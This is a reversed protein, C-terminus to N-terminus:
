CPPAPTLFDLSEYQIDDPDPAVMLSIGINWETRSGQNEKSLVVPRLIKNALLSRTLSECLSHVASTAALTFDVQDWSDYVMFRFSLQCQKLEGESPHLADQITGSTLSEHMGRAYGAADGNKYGYRYGVILGVSLSVVCGCVLFLLGIM